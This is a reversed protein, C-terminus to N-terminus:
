KEFRERLDESALNAWVQFVPSAPRIPKSAQVNEGISDIYTDYERLTRRGQSQMDGLDKRQTKKIEQDVNNM